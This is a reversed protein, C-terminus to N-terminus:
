GFGIVFNLLKDSYTMEAEDQAVVHNLTTMDDTIIGDVGYFRMRAQGEESNVTWVFVDKGDNHASNIFNQNITSYEMTLFDAQTIPPGVVNFPLIYGAVINPAKTKVEEIIEHSLSQIIHGNEEINKQYRTLFNDVIASKRQAPQKIEILLKQNLENAKALYDDFSVLPQSQGNESASLKELEALTLEYPKGAVGTLGKLKFDHFVIFQNDATEQIDMEIYDPHLTATKELAAISNQVSNKESVGRHSVTLPQSLKASTLYETNYSGIGIGFLIAIFIFGGSKIRRWEKKERVEELYFWEPIEPLFGEADMFDIIIFFIGVTSFVINILLIFQLMTMAIVASQLAYAEFYNEVFIQGLLILSYSVSFIIAITGGIFIFRGVIALFNKKTAQWSEKVAQKFPVDRLIMEPLAFILRIGICIMSLYFLIFAIVVFVRNAFIADIIFAPIKIKSLLDSNFSLGSIPLVLFFYFLFFFITSLHVKKIQQLTMRILQWVGVPQKKKIFYMSMLLFTFEFFILIVTLLMVFVLALLVFPHGTLISLLNDYSLYDIAGRHLIFRTSSALTPIVVFLIFSHILLVDRFYAKTGKLFNWTNFFSTKLYNM